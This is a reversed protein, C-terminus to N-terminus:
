YGLRKLEEQVEKAQKITMRLTDTLARVSSEATDAKLAAVEIRTRHLSAECSECQHLIQDVRIQQQKVLDLREKHSVMTEERMRVREAQAEDQRLTELEKEIDVLEKELRENTPSHIATMLGLSDALITGSTRPLTLCGNIQTLCTV